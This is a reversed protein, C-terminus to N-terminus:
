NVGVILLSFGTRAREWPDRDEVNREEM